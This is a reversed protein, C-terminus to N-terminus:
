MKRCNRSLKGMRTSVCSKISCSFSKSQMDKEICCKKKRRFSTSSINAVSHLNNSSTNPAALPGALSVGTFTSATWGLAAFWVVHVIRTPNHKMHVSFVRKNRHQGVPGSAKLISM